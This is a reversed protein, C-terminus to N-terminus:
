KCTRSGAMIGGKWSRGYTTFSNLAQASTCTDPMTATKYRMIPMKRSPKRRSRSDLGMMDANRDAPARIM